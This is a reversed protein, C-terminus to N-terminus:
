TADETEGHDAQVARAAPEAPDAAAMPPTAAERLMAAADEPVVDNVFVGAASESGALYKLKGPARRASFIELRLHSLERGSAVPAQVLGTIYPMPVGFLRDFRRLVEAELVFLEQRQADTLAPLDPVHPLAYVHVEFPWRPASPVFAVFNGTEAIVRQRHDLEDALIACFLCQGMRAKHRAASDLARQVRPPVFPYAYIQGHPHHLTVGTEEGRNEFCFVYEVGPMASLALTREALAAGITGLRTPSLRSFSTDHDSSFCIVECRGIGPRRAAVGGHPEHVAHSSLSPFRNEFVVVDYDSSPIETMRGPGSPCLPCQDTPPLHTREQRHAAIVVWEDLVADYRIEPNSEVRVLRRGDPTRSPRGADDDYYVLERGDAMPVTTVVHARSAMADWATGAPLAEGTM